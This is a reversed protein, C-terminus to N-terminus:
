CCPIDCFRFIQECCLGASGPHCRHSSLTDNHIWIYSYDSRQEKVPNPPLISATSWGEPSRFILSNRYWFSFKCITFSLSHWIQINLQFWHLKYNSEGLRKRPSWFAVSRLKQGNTTLDVIWHVICFNYHPTLILFKGNKLSNMVTKFSFTVKM